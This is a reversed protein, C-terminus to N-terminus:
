NSENSAPASLDDKKVGWLAPNKTFQNNSLLRILPSLFFTATFLNSAVGVSLAIGLPRVFGSDVILVALGVIFLVLNPDIFSRTADSVASSASTRLQRGLRAEAAVREIILVSTDAAVLCTLTVGIVASITLTFFGYFSLIALIGLNFFFFVTLSLAAILGLGRYFFVLLLYFVAVAALLVFLTRMVIDIGISPGASYSSVSISFPLAGTNIIVSLSVSTVDSFGGALTLTSEKINRSTIRASTAFGDILVMAQRNSIMEQDLQELTSIGYDNVVVQVSYDPYYYSYDVSAQASTFDSSSLVAQYAGPQLSVPKWSGNSRISAVPLQANTVPNYFMSAPLLYTNEDSDPDSYDDSIFLAAAPPANQIGSIFGLARLYTRSVTQNYQIAMMLEIDDISSMDILEIVGTSGVINLVFGEDIDAPIEVLFSDSGMISVNVEALGIMDLREDLIEKGRVMDEYSVASGNPYSAKLIVTAGGRLYYGRKISTTPPVLMLLTGVLAIAMVMLMMVQPRNGTPKKRPVFRKDPM